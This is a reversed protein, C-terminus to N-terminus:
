ENEKVYVDVSRPVSHSVGDETYKLYVGSRPCNEVTEIFISEFLDEADRGLMVYRDYKQEAYELCYREYMLKITMMDKALKPSKPDYMRECAALEESTPYFEIPQPRIFFYEALVRFIDLQGVRGLYKRYSVKM